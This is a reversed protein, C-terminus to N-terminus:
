DIMRAVARRHQDKAWVTLEPIEGAISYGLSTLFGACNRENDEILIVPASQQISDLAGRLAELEHGEVDLHIVSLNSIKFADITLLATPQGHDSIQSAGGRHAHGEDATNIKAVSISSGLGANSLIVNDLGNEQVCLKAMVYNELVPEFAYVTGSCARSFTPLMDGIFTGAHVMNGPRYQLLASVLAHTKEEFLAGELLYRGVPRHEAYDPLLFIGAPHSVRLLRISFRDDELFPAYKKPVPVPKPIRDTSIASLGSLLIPPVFPKLKQKLNLRNGM